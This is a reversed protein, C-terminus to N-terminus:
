TVKVATCDVSHKLLSFFMGKGTKKVFETGKDVKHCTFSINM